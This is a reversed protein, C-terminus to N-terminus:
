ELRMLFDVLRSMDAETLDDYAPMDAGPKIAEPAAIWRRLTSPTIERIGAALTTRSAFHTLDPGVRGRAPTGRIAHCAGCGNEQFVALGPDDDAVDAPRALRELTAAHEDPDTVVVKFLMQAHADGCFEACVGNWIGTETPTLTLENTRGPIMDMKGGIAPVWFSHIVDDSTLRFTVPQGAPLHIENADRIPGDEGEYTVRWWWQEGDVEVVTEGQGRTTDRLVILGFTLLGALVVTPLAVGGWRVMSRALRETREPDVPTTRVAYAAIVMVLTWIVGAGIVLPWFLMEVAQAERGAGSLWNQPGSCGALILAGACVLAWVRPSGGSQRRM